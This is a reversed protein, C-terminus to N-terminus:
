DHQNGPINNVFVEYNEISSEKLYYKAVTILTSVNTVLVCQTVIKGDGESVPSIKM